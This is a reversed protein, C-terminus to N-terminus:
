RNLEWLMRLGDLTLDEDVIDIADTEHAILSILGGTGIVKCPGHEVKFRRVLGEILGAYGFVGGSQVNSMTNKGIATRPRALDVRYLRAARDFLADMSIELGPAIAGGLFNGEDSVADFTTATGMDIVIAPGGYRQHAAVTNAIRDAGVERPNDVLLKIGTKIGPGVVFPRASLYREVLTQFTATLPPVVSGIIVDSFTNLSIGRMACLSSLIVIHEDVTRAPDTKLRWRATATTGDFAGIVVNTNGIDVALLM